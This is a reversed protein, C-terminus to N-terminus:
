MASDVDGDADRGNNDTQDAKETLQTLCLCFPTTAQARLSDFMDFFPGNLMFVILLLIAQFDGDLM